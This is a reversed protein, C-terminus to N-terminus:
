PGATANLALGYKVKLYVDIPTTYPLGVRYVMVEAITGRFPLDVGDANGLVAGFPFNEGNMEPAGPYPGAQFSSDGDLWM